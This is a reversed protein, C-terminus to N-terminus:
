SALEQPRLIAVGGDQMRICLSPMGCSEMDPRVSEITGERGKYSVACGVMERLESAKIRRFTKSMGWTM